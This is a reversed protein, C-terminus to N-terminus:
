RGDLHVEALVGSMIDRQAIVPCRVESFRQNTRSVMRPARKFSPCKKRSRPRKM